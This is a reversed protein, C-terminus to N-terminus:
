ECVPRISYGYYRNNASLGFYNGNFNLYQARNSTTGLLTSTWYYGYKGKDSIGTGHRGATPLFISNGNPGIVKYGNIGNVISWQWYCTNRLEDFEEKTPIRWSGGWNVHAADDEPELITKNDVTGFDSNNCYKTITNSSGNCLKYNSWTFNTKEDTEGWAYYGGNEEPNTAGINMNAWKTGSPLGLDVAKILNKFKATITIDEMVTLTYKEDTSIPSKDDIFWGFFYCDEDPSAIITIVSGPQIAVTSNSFDEFYVSGYGASLITVTPWKKFKATLTINDEVKFTYEIDTSLPNEEDNVYWGVFDCNENPIAVVTIETNPLVAVSNGSYDKFVVNGNDTSRITVVPRKSFKATLTIDETVNFTYELDTSIPSENDAVFWGIFDCDKYPTAIVTATTDPLFAKYTGYTDKISVSGNGASRVTIIPCKNFKAILTRNEKATFTYEASTSIPTESNDIFWGVFYCYTDPTAIVTVETGPVVPISNGTAGKFAVRGNGGSRIIIDSLKAFRATLTVSESTTFTFAADTSVPTETGSIYWGIFACGDDPTAVVEVSNGILVNVSTGIYDTISVTGNGESKVTIKCINPDLENEDCSVFLSSFVVLLGLLISVHKKM